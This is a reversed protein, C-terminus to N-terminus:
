ASEEELPALLVYLLGSDSGTRAAGAGDNFAVNKSAIPAWTKGDSEIRIESVDIDFQTHVAARYDVPPPTAGLYGSCPAGIRALTTSGSVRYCDVSGTITESSIGFVPAATEDFIQDDYPFPLNIEPVESASDIEERDWRAFPADQRLYTVGDEASGSGGENSGSAYVWPDDFAVTGDEDLDKIATESILISPSFRWGGSSGALFKFVQFSQFRYEFRFQTLYSEAFPIFGPSPEAGDVSCAGGSAASRFPDVGFVICLYETEEDDDDPWSVNVINQWKDLRVPPNPGGGYKVTM